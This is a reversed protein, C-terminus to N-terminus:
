YHRVFLCFSLIPIQLRRSGFQLRFLRASPSAIAYTSQFPGDCLTLIGYHALALGFTLVRLTPNNPLVAWFPLYVEELALYTHSVSLSCTSHLFSSFFKPFLALLSSVTSSSATPVLPERDFALRPFRIDRLTFRVSVSRSRLSRPASVSERAVPHHGLRPIVDAKPCAPVIVRAHPIEM